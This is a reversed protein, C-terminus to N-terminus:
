SRRAYETQVDELKRRVAGSRLLELAADIGDEISPCRGAVVFGAASNLAVLDRFCPHSDPDRLLDDFIRLNDELSLVANSLEFRASKERVDASLLPTGVDSLREHRRSTGNAVEFIINDSGPLLEDLGTMSHVVLARKVHAQSSLYEAMLACMDPQSLGFVRYSPRCPNLLPGIFNFITAHPLSRRIPALKALAPFFQPAFLFLIGTSDLIDKIREPAISVSIGLGELFDFSGCGGRSSRNGFKAVNVGGAALIFASVTSTNFHALGSGGTGSCDLVDGLDSVAAALRDDLTSQVVDIFDTIVERTIAQPQLNALHLRIDSEPLKASVINSIVDRSLM